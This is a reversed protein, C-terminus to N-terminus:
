AGRMNRFYIFLLLSLIAMFLPYLYLYTVKIYVKAEIKSAELEDIKQYIAFLAEADSAGFAEGNGADALEKLYRGDYDRNTGIGITYLTVPSKEVLSKVEELPVKSMNDIGDTLLIAIKSKAKSHSLMNYTQVLSDNIATRQGAVGMRQMGIIQQLFKTEFTLPSAVFAIDAFTVLGIRDNERSAVFDSAVEQVVTFKNKQMDKADFRAQKMSESSDIILVIDRGDRKSNSYEKSLIPSALAIIVTVITLWKLWAILSNKKQKGGLLIEMHPFYITRSKVKCFRACLLFLVMLALFWPYEFSFQNM